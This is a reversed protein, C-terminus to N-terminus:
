GLPAFRQMLAQAVRIGDVGASVIGGAYGAGEGCPYLGEIGISQLTEDRKVRLPSSTRTEVGTLVADACAFGKIKRDFCALGKKLMEGIFPPFFSSFDCPEVGLCYSPSVRGQELAAKEKLFAGVTQAPARYSEKGAVFAKQELFRQFHMGAFLDRGFDKGDVSVVLAANANERNRAYESMGNTVVGGAESSSPVVLGGPCMCFTYVGRDGERYSLQYEGHPLAPHSAFKGYLARDIESQLHEIRVGVSFAKQEMVIGSQALMQFTDRASHGVALIITDTEITEGDIEAGVVRKNKLKIDTLKSQFQIEGGLSLIEQRINKVVERLKDTGIHPKARTLIEKPAGHQAFTELIFHCREDHIRTTLKGDSFTGAGGEGFQVNNNEQLLGTKWFAEVAQVREEIAAGREIILPRYGNRALLLGAFMGAPGFGVIVPRAMLKKSGIATELKKIKRATIDRSKKRAAFAEEDINLDFGVSYCLKIEEKKRADVSEKVIYAKSIQSPRLGAKKVAKEIAAAPGKGLPVTISNVILAM